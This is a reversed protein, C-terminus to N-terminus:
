KGSVVTLRMGVVMSFSEGGTDGQEGPQLDLSMGRDKDYKFKKFCGEGFDGQGAPQQSLYVYKLRTQTQVHQVM